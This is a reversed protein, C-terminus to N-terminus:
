SNADAKEKLQQILGLRYITADRRELTIQHVGDVHIMWSGVKNEAMTVREEPTKVRELKARRNRVFDITATLAHVDFAIQREDDNLEGLLEDIAVSLAADMALRRDDPYSIPQRLSADYTTIM